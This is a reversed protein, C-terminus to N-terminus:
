WGQDGVLPVFRVLGLEDVRFEAGERRVRILQQNSRDAGVPVVLRGGDALQSRLAEPVSPGGATVVIADYPAVQPWGLTGDGCLVHVNDYGLGRLRLEAADALGRHREITWVEGSVSALVAAGYGSGTGVELVRDGDTLEAAAAMLAVVFPQSITQEAGIPLPRDAYAQGALREPVFRERPVSRLAALVREDVIGRGAIQVEVM